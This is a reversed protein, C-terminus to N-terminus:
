PERNTGTLKKGKREHLERFLRNSASDAIDKSKLNEITAKFLIMSEELRNDHEKDRNM